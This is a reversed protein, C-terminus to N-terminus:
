DGILKLSILATLPLELPSPYSFYVLLREREYEEKGDGRAGGETM